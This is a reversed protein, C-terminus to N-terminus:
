RDLRRLRSRLMHLEDLLELALAAGAWNVGLDRRLHVACHIRRVSTARFRWHSLDRGAAEIVGEEVLEVVEEAHLHCARCLDSLTLELEDGLVEGSLPMLDNIM